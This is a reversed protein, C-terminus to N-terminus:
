NKLKAIIIRDIQNYDKVVEIIKFKASNNVIDTISDSQNYGMEMMLIGNRKLYAPSEKVIRRYFKLGDRGGDLAIKPESRVETALHPIENSAIYPPNSIIMDFEPHVFSEKSLKTERLENFLDSKLFRIRGKVRNLRANERAVKLAEHSIDTAIIKSEVLFKALSIAINGCATGVDLIKYRTNANCRLVDLAKEVLLETEPRPIFVERNLKFKLGMFETYGNIYQLPEGKIRRILVSSLIDLQDEKLIIDKRYLDIRECDLISTLISEIERM